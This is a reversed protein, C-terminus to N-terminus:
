RVIFPKLPLSVSRVIFTNLPLSVSRVIFTKLNLNKSSKLRMTLKFISMCNIFHSTIGALGEETM